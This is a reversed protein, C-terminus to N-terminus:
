PAPRPSRDRAFRTVDVVRNETIRAVSLDAGGISASSTSTAGLRPARRRSRRWVKRGTRQDVFEGAKDTMARVKEPNQQVYRRGQAVLQRAINTKM